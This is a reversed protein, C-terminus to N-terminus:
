WIWCLELGNLHFSHEPEEMDLLNIVQDECLYDMIQRKIEPNNHGYNMSGAVALFDSYREGEETYLETNLAKDFSGFVKKLFRM